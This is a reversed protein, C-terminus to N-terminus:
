LAPKRGKRKAPPAEEASAEAEPEPEPEPSEAILGKAVMKALTEDDYTGGPVTDGPRFRDFFRLATYAPM